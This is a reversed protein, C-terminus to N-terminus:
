ELLIPHHDSTPKPLLSQKAGGFHVEWDDTFLFRNLRAMRQNNLGGKWTYQGRQIPLDKLELEDIIQSFRRMSRQIRGERNREGPFRIDNFDGGLCWSEGGYVELSESIKGFNSEERRTQPGMCVLLSGFSTAMVIGLNVLYLLCFAEFSFVKGEKMFLNDKGCLYGRGFGIMWGDWVVMSKHTASLPLGLYSSHHVGVKCALELALVEINDFRGVPLIKIKELDVRLRSIADFWTLSLNLYAM